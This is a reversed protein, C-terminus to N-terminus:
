AARRKSVRGHQPFRFLRGVPRQHGGFAVGTALVWSLCAVVVVPVAAAGIVGFEWPSPLPAALDFWMM